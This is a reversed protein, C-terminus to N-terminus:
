IRTAKSRILASREVGTLAAMYAEHAQEQTKFWGLNYKKKNIMIQACYLKHHKSLTTGLSGPNTRHRLRNMQNIRTTVIRLNKRRNDLGNGNIHDVMVGKAAGLVIRHMRLTTPKNKELRATRIAYIQGLFWKHKNLEAFDCDDVCARLKKKGPLGHLTIWKM